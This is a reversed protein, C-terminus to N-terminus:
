RGGIYKFTDESFIYFILGKLPTYVEHTNQIKEYNIIPGEVKIELKRIVEFSNEFEVEDIRFSKPGDTKISIKRKYILTDGEILITRKVSDIINEGKIFIAPIFPIFDEELVYREEGTYFIEKLYERVYDNDKKFLRQEGFFSTIKAEQGLISTDRLVEIFTTDQYPLHLFKTKFGNYLPFYDDSIRDILSNKFCSSLIVFIILPYKRIL